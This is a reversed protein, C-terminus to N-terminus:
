KRKSRYPESPHMIIPVYKAGVTYIAGCEPCQMIKFRIQLKDTEADLIAEIGIPVGGKCGETPCPALIASSAM